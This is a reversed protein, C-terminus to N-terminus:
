GIVKLEILKSELAYADQFTYGYLGSECAAQAFEPVDDVFFCSSPTFGAREVAKKFIRPNPKMAKVEYSLIYGQFLRLIPYHKYLFEFHADCTNSLGFIPINARKLKWILPEIDPNPSFGACLAKKLDNPALQKGVRKEFLIYIEDFSLQGTEYKETVGEELFQCISDATVRCVAALAEVMKMRNFFICVNGIDFFCCRIPSNM